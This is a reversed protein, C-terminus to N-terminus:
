RGLLVAGIDPLDDNHQMASGVAAVVRVPAQTAHGLALRPIGIVFAQNAEDLAIQVRDDGSGQLNGAQVEAADAVGIMGEYGSGAAFGYVTVLRDFRFVQNTGWWAMGNTPDGDVDLALNVGMWRSPLPGQLAIRFWVRERADDFLVALGTADPLRKQKGDDAADRALERWPGKPLDSVPSVQFSATWAPGPQVRLRADNRDAYLTVDDVEVEFRGTRGAGVSIGLWRVLARDLAPATKSAFREFPVDVEKWDPGTELAAMYNIGPSPGARLALQVVGNGRLRLRVGQFDSLDVARGRGDLAVWAGAFGSPGVDGTVRLARRADVGTDVVEIHAISAGGMLDDAISIWSSGSAARRDRDEFDDITLSRGHAAMVGHGVLLAAAMALVSM